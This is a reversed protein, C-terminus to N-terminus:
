YPRRADQFDKLISAATVAIGAVRSSAVHLGYTARAGGEWGLIPAGSVGKATACSHQFARQGIRQVKCNVHRTLRHLRSSAFGAIIFSANLRPPSVALPAPAGSFAQDLVLVAWDAARDPNGLKPAYGASVRYEVVRMHQRYQGRDYGALVHLSTPRIWNRPRELWLCHAATLITRADIAFGTCHGGIERNVRVVASFPDKADAYARVPLLLIGLILIMLYIRAISTTDKATRKSHDAPPCTIWSICAPM